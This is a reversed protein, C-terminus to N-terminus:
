PLCELVQHHTERILDLHTTTGAGAFTMHTANNLTILCRGPASINDFAFRRDVSKIDTIVIGQDKTGTLHLCPTTVARFSSPTMSGSSMSIAASVRQDRYSKGLVTEGIILLTTQAGFSHGAVGIVNTNVRPDGLMQTITFSIDIPRNRANEATVAQRMSGLRDSKGRWTVDDSGLHQVHVSIYGNSAWHQSLYAYGERTGGLGHSFVILPANTAGTPAYIKVPIDRDRTADHWTLNTVSLMAVTLLAIVADM